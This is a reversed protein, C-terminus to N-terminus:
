WLRSVGFTDFLKENSVLIMDNLLAQAILLRDFPDRHEGAIAGALRAEATSISLGEFGEASVEAEFQRTLRSAAALKGLRHKQAIEYASVASVWIGNAPDRIAASADRGLRPSDELWWILTHTDLLLRM